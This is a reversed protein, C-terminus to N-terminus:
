SNWIAKLINNFVFYIFFILCHYDVHGFLSVPASAIKCRNPNKEGGNCANRFSYADRDIM